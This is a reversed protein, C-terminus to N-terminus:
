RGPRLRGGTESQSNMALHWCECSSNNQQETDPTPLPRPRIYIWCLSHLIHMLTQTHEIRYCLPSTEGRLEVLFQGMHDLQPGATLSRSIKYLSVYLPSREAGWRFIPWEVPVSSGKLTPLVFAYVENGAASPGRTIVGCVLSKWSDVSGCPRPFGKCRVAIPSIVKPDLEEVVLIRSCGM